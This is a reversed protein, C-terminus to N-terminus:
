DYKQKFPTPWQAGCCSKSCLNHQISMEGGAGDDLFYYNSPITDPVEASGEVPGREFGPGDMITGTSVDVFPPVRGEQEEVSVTGVQVSEEQIVPSEEQFGERRVLAGVSSFILVFIVLLLVVGLVVKVRNSSMINSIA